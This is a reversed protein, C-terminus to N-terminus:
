MVLKFGLKYQAKKTKMNKNSRSYSVLTEWAVRQLITADAHSLDATYPLGIPSQQYFAAYFM